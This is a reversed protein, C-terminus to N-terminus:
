SVAKAADGPWTRHAQPIGPEFRAARCGPIAILPVPDLGLFHAYSKLFGTTYCAPPLAGTDGRELSNLYCVPVRTKQSVESM